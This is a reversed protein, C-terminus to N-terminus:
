FFDNCMTKEGSLSLIYLGLDKFGTSFSSHRWVSHSSRYVRGPFKQNIFADIQWTSGDLGGGGKAKMGWFDAERVKRELQEWDKLQLSKDFEKVVTCYPKIKLTDGNPKILMFSQGDQSTSYETYHISVKGDLLTITINQSFFCFAEWHKFRYATDVHLNSLKEQKVCSDERGYFIADQRSQQMEKKLSSFFSTDNKAYAKVIKFDRNFTDYFEMSDISALYERVVSDKLNIQPKPSLHPQCCFSIFVLIITIVKLM